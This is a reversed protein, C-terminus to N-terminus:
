TSFLDDLGGSGTVTEKKSWIDEEYGYERVTEAWIEGETHSLFNCL